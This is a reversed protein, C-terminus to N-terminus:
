AKKEGEGGAMEVAAEAAAAVAAEEMAKSIEEQKLAALTAEHPPLRPVSSPSYHSFALLDRRHLAVDRHTLEPADFRM